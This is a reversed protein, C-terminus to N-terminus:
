SVKKEAAKASWEQMLKTTTDDKPNECEVYQRMAEVALACHGMAELALAKHYWAKALRKDIKLAECADIYTM